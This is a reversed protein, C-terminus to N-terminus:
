GGNLLRNVVDVLTAPRFPKTLLVDAGLSQAAHAQDDRLDESGSMAIIKADPRSRRIQRITEVGEKKPMHLDTIVLAPGREAFVTLGHEGDEAEIVTHKARELMRRVLDRMSAMDDIVLILAM